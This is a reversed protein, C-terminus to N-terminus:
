LGRVVLAVAASGAIGGVVGIVVLGGLVRDVKGELEDLRTVIRDAFRDHEGM